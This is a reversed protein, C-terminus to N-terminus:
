LVNLIIMNLVRYASLCKSTNDKSQLTHFKKFCSLKWSIIAWFIDASQVPNAIEHSLRLRGEEVLLAVSFVAALDHAKAELINNIHVAAHGIAGAVDKDSYHYYVQFWVLTQTSCQAWSTGLSEYIFIIILFYACSIHVCWGM